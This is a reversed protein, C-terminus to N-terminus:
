ANDREKQNNLWLEGFVGLWEAADTLVEDVRVAYDQSAMHEVLYSPSSLSSLELIARFAREGQAAKSSAPPESNGVHAVAQKRRDKERVSNKHRHDELAKAPDDAGGIKALRTCEVYGVFQINEVVWEKFAIGHEACLAKAEALKIAASLRHDDAKQLRVNIEHALDTLSNSGTPTASHLQIVQTM